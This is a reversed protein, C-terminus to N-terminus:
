PLRANCKCCHLPPLAKHSIHAGTHAIILLFSRELYLRVRSRGFVRLYECMVQNPRYFSLFAHNATVLSPLYTMLIRRGSLTLHPSFVYTPMTQPIHFSLFSNHLYFILLSSIFTNSHLFISSHYVCVIM